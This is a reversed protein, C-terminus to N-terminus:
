WEPQWRVPGVIVRVVTHEEEPVQEVEVIEVYGQERTVYTLNLVKGKYPPPANSEYEVIITGDEKQIIYYFEHAM